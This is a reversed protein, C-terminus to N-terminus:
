ATRSASRMMVARQQHWHSEVQGHDVRRVTPDAAEALAEEVEGRFWADHEGSQHWREVADRMLVRLQQAATREQGAAAAAFAAKLM